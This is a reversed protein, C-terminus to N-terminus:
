NVKLVTSVKIYTAVLLDYPVLRIKKFVASSGIENISNGKSIQIKLEGIYPIEKDYKGMHSYFRNFNFIAIINEFDSYERQLILIDDSLAEMKLTGPSIAKSKKLQLLKTFNELHSTKSTQQLHVNREKYNASVPLWTQSANSFGSNSEENWQFPTRCFNTAFSKTEALDCIFADRSTEDFDVCVDTM